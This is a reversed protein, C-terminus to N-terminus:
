DELNEVNQNEVYIIYDVEIEEEYLVHSIRDVIYQDGEKAKNAFDLLGGDDFWHHEKTTVEAQVKDGNELEMVFVPYYRTPSRHQFRADYHKELVAGTMQSTYFETDDARKQVYFNYGAIVAGFIIMVFVVIYDYWKLRRM